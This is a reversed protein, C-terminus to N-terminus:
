SGMQSISLTRRLRRQASDVVALPIEQLAVSSTLQRLTRATRTRPRLWADNGIFQGRYESAEAVYPTLDQHAAEFAARARSRLRRAALPDVTDWPKAGMAHLVLPLERRARWRETVTWGSAGYCQAIEVGRRLQTVQIDAYTTSGLLGTFVHLDSGFHLPRRTARRGIVALYDESSLVASWHEVLPIHSRSVRLLCTNVTAPFSRGVDLGLGTTRSSVGQAHGWFYEETAVIAADPIAALRAGLDGTVIMDSDFWLVQDHGERFASLLVSPKVNWSEGDIGDRTTVLELSPVCAAWEVLQDSAGPVIARVQLQPSHRALSLTALQVGVFATPRDEYIVVLM